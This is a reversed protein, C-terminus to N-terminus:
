FGKRVKGLLKKQQSSVPREEGRGHVKKEGKKFGTRKGFSHVRIEKSKIYRQVRCGKRNSRAM